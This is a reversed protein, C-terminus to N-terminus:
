NYYIEGQFNNSKKFTYDPYLIFYEFTFDNKLKEPECLFLFTAICDAVLGNEAVVWASLVEDVSKLSHPNFIHHFDGWKRRNGSSACISQNKIESVGIVQNKNKPHELGVRLLDKGFYLIDGSGDICYSYIKEKEFLKGILDILFGKGGAGFDLLNSKKINLIFDSYEVVEEWDPVQNLKGSILSYKSDYGAEVLLNGVLPTFLGESLDYLKKYILILESYKKPIKIKRSKLGAKSIESKEDFRSFVNSFNKIEEDIKERLDSVDVSKKGYIDITWSTGIAEFNFRLSGTM